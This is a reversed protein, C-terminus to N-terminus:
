AVRSPRTRRRRSRRRYLAVAAWVLLALAVIVLLPAFLALLSLGLATMDEAASVVPTGIGVTTANVVPRTATNLGHVLGAM